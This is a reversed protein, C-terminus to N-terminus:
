RVASASITFPYRPAGYTQINVSTFNALEQLLYQLANPSMRWYDFTQINNHLPYFYPITILFIGGPKLLNKAQLIVSSPQKVHELVDFCLISDWSAPEFQQDLHHLDCIIDVNPHIFQDVSVYQCHDQLCKRPYDWTGAGIDLVKGHLCYKWCDLFNIINLRHFTLYKGDVTRGPPFVILPLCLNFIKGHLNKLFRNM